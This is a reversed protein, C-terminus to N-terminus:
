GKQLNTVAENLIIVAVRGDSDDLRLDIVPFPVVDLNLPHLAFHPDVQVITIVLDRLSRVVLNNSKVDVLDTYPADLGRVPAIHLM